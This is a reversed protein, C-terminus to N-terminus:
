EKQERRFNLIHLIRRISVRRPHHAFRMIYISLSEGSIICTVAVLILIVGVLIRSTFAENFVLVGIILATVPELAGLVATPTSGIRRIAGAMTVLSIVTPFLGLGVACGWLPITPIVQLSEGFGLRAWFVFLGSLLVYFTLKETEMRSLSSRNVGVIYVAYSLASLFVISIGVWSISEGDSTKCLLAVGVFATLIALSTIWSLREHFGVAMIIAVLVPYVFLITSAIGADMYHYSQFLFLSSFAMLMGMGILRPVDHRTIALSHGRSLIMIALLVVASLYRYFLVTDVTMGVAYLPLAFLPNLGYSAAAIAGLLYGRSRERLM